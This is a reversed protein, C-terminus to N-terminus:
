IETSQEPVEPKVFYMQNGRGMCRIVGEAEFTKLDALATNKLRGTMQTYTSRNIFGFKNLHRMLIEKLEDKSRKRSVRFDLWRNRELDGSLGLRLKKSARFNVGNFFVSHSRIDKKSAVMRSKVKASLFGFDGLEVRYGDELYHATQNLLETLIGEIEGEQFGSYEATKKILKDASITGSYVIGAYMTDTEGKKTTLAPKKKLSYYAM